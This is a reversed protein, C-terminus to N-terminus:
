AGGAGRLRELAARQAKQCTPCTSRLVAAVARREDALKAELRAATRRAEDATRRADAAVQESADLSAQLNEVMELLQAALLAADLGGKGCEARIERIQRPTLRM